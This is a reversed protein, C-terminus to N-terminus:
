KKQMTRNTGPPTGHASLIYPKGTTMQPNTPTMTPAQRRSWVIQAFKAADIMQKAIGATLKNPIITPAQAILEPWHGHGLEAEAHVDIM